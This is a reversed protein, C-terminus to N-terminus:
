GALMRNEVGWRLSAHNKGAVDAEDGVAITAPCCAPCEGFLGAVRVADRRAQAQELLTLLEAHFFDGHVAERLVVGAPGTHLGLM